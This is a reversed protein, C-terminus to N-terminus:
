CGKQREIRRLKRVISKLRQPMRGYPPRCGRGFVSIARQTKFCHGRQAFIANREYWLQSCSMEYYPGDDGARASDMSLFSISAFAMAIAAVTAV